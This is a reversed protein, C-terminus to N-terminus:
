QRKHPRPANENFIKQLDVNFDKAVDDWNNNIKRKALVSKVNKGSANAILGAVCIDRPEYSDNLLGEVTKKDLKSKQALGTLMEDKLFADFQERTVGLKEAVQHWDNKMGLVEAFPHGSIKALTAAHKIDGFPTGERLAAAVENQDVGYYDAIEKSSTAIQEESLQRREHPGEFDGHEFEARPEHKDFNAAHANGLAFGGTLLLAGSLIGALIKKKLKKM